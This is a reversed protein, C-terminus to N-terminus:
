VAFGSPMLLKSTFLYIARRAFDGQRDLHKRVHLAISGTTARGRGGGDPGRIGKRAVIQEDEGGDGARDAGRGREPGHLDRAPVVVHPVRGRRRGVRDRSRGVRLDSPDEQVAVSVRGVGVQLLAFGGQRDGERPQALAIPVPQVRGLAVIPPGVEGTAAELHVGGRRPHLDIRGRLAGHVPLALRDRGAVAAVLAQARARDGVAGRDERRREAGLREADRGGVAGPVHGRHRAVVRDGIGRGDRERGRGEHGGGHGGAGGSTAACGTTSGGGSFARRRRGRRPALSVGGAGHEAPLGELVRLEVVDLDEQQGALAEDLHERRERLGVVDADGAAPQLGPGDVHPPHPRHHAPM